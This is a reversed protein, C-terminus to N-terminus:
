SDYICRYHLSKKLLNDFIEAGSSGQDAAFGFRGFALAVASVTDGRGGGGDGALLVAGEGFAEALSLFWQSGLVFDEGDDSPLQLFCVSSWFLRGVKVTGWGIHVIWQDSEAYGYSGDGPICSRWGRSVDGSSWFMFFSIFFGLILVEILRSGTVIALSWVYLAVM